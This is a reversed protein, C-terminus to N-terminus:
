YVMQNAVSVPTGFAKVNKGFPFLQPFSWKLLVISLDLWFRATAGDRFQCTALMRFNDLIFLLDWVVLHHVSM